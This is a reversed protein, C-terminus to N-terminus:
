KGNCKGCTIIVDEKLRTIHAIEGLIKREIGVVREIKERKIKHDSTIKHEFASDGSANKFDCEECSYIPVEQKKEVNTVKYDFKKKCKQCAKAKVGGNIQVVNGVKDVQKTPTSFEWEM